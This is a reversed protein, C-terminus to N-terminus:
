AYTWDPQKAAQHEDWTVVGDAIDVIKPVQLPRPHEKSCRGELHLAFEEPFHQLMSSIIAQEETALYCRTQDTVSRLRAGIVEIEHDSGTGESLAELARTIEGCGFKCSRCQGCSEVYLFRSVMRAIEVPCARDDYVVFGASGLGSGTAVLAEYDLPVDLMSQTLVGNAVGSIVAQVTQGPLPGGALEILEAVTIGLPVEVVLPHVVDGTVTAIITGPSGETGQTRFWEPGRALILPVNALTEVNNVLTPNAQGPGVVPGDTAEWGTQVDTAFLGHQFPPLLRPLPDRGEIVELLGKEEGFLYEDPGLVLTVPITDFWGAASTEEIASELREAERQYSAKTTVYAGEAGVAAAAIALGELVLYPNHRILARDKFTGPEGEAGNAVVFRRGPGADRIGAWKRATPFGGGGRGRLRSLRLESILQDAGAARARALGRGGGGRLYTDLDPVPDGALLVAVNADDDM